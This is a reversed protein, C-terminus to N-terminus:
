FIGHTCEEKLTITAFIPMFYHYLYVIAIFSILTLLSYTMKKRDNNKWFYLTATVGLIILAYYSYRYLNRLLEIRRTKDSIPALCAFKGILSTFSKENKKKM